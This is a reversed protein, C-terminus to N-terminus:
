DNKKYRNQSTYTPCRYTKYPAQEEYIEDYVRNVVECQLQVAIATDMVILYGAPRPDRQNASVMVGIRFPEEKAARKRRVRRWTEVRWQISCHAIEGGVVAAM